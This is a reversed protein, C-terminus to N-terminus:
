GFPQDNIRVFIKFVQVANSNMVISAVYRSTLSAIQV